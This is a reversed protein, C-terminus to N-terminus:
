NVVIFNVRTEATAAANAYLVFAGASAVAQVSKLTSDNSAVTAIVVSDTTVKNSTVTLTTEGAGFNVSGAAKDITQNGIAGAATITKDVTLPAIWSLVGATTASLVYGTESPVAGPLTLTYNSAINAPAKIAAWNSNDSDAFQVPNASSARITGDVDLEVEPSATRVGVRDNVVDVVFTSTDVILDNNATLVGDLTLAGTKTQATSGDNLFSQTLNAFTIKRTNSDADNIILIDDDTPTTIATLQSIRITAM